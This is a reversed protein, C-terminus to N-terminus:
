SEPIGAMELGHIYLDIQEQRKLYFLKERAFACSFEPLEKLLQAKATALEQHQLYALAVVKHAAAWYQCNPIISASEAWQVAKAYDQKFILVLAGYTYFAWLQPDNPSLAIAKDFCKIAEEYRGEYALSDGLGCHAAAFSSNLSIAKKNEAIARDYERRALLVRAKLAYFTANQADLSLAKDCAQLARDLLAQTPKTQWYIMGLILAYAWWAFAEGFNEDLQQSQLLLDQAHQNDAGTFKFFHYIGLHYCDWAQLNAPRAHIVKNREASGIEPELRAVIMETIEDQLSFIDAIERDYREGWKQHGSAADILNASVRVRNAVRQVSGEVVYDVALEIGLQRIDVAKGKYGFTTNRATVDLWRHRSLFTIIDASVGDSFYEHDPESSLNAFPLVAIAPKSNNSLNQNRLAQSDFGEDANIIGVRGQDAEVEAVFRFGKKHITRIVQQTRGSDGLVQRATKIRSSLAAESVIRGRWVQENIEQKSVMRERNVILLTILEIVQPEIAQAVGGKSLEFCDTDLMFENFRYIM